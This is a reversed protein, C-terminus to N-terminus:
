RKIIKLVLESRLLTKHPYFRSLDVGHHIKTMRNHDLGGVEVLTDVAYQTPPVWWDFDRLKDSLFIMDNSWHVTQHNIIKSGIKHIKDIIPFYEHPVHWLILLPIKHKKMIKPIKEPIQGFYETKVPHWVAFPLSEPAAQEWIKPALHWKLKPNMENMRRLLYFTVVAGGDAEWPTAGWILVKGIM